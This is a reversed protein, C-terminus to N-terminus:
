IKAKGSGGCRRCTRMKTGTDVNWRAFEEGAGMCVNCLGTETEYEATWRDGAEVSVSVTRCQTVKRWNPKGKNKGRTVLPCQAFEFEVGIPPRGLAKWQRVHWGDGLDHIKRLKAEVIDLNM